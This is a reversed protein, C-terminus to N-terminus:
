RATPDATDAPETGLRLESGGLLRAINSAHRWIVLACLGATVAIEWAPRGAVAVGIPLTGVVALSAVSARGTARSLVAWVAVAVVTVLPHLVAMTGAGTAVGKGGRLPHSVPAVHGIVAAAGLWYGAPRGDAILGVSTAIVGKLADLAFVLAGRRWGLTRTVNSAGPNGSGVTRIDVGAARAVLAASPFSGLLYAPVVLWAWM